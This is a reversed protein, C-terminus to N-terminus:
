SKSLPDQRGFVRERMRASGTRATEVIHVAERGTLGFRKVLDMPVDQADGVLEVFLRDRAQRAKHLEAQASRFRDSQAPARGESGVIQSEGTALVARKADTVGGLVREIRHENDETM